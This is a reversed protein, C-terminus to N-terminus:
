QLVSMLSYASKLPNIGLALQHGREGMEYLQEDTMEVIQQLRHKLDAENGTEFRFGNYGNILFADNAGVGSSTIIPLGAATFEHVVVGWPDISSPLCFVGWEKTREAVQENALFDIIEIDPTATFKVPGNGVLVLKWDNPHTKKLSTFASVLLDIRKSEAMRGAFVFTHPYKQKKTIRSEDFAKRFTKMDASLLGPIIRSNDYGMRRAYEYQRNGPVFFYDFYKKYLPNAFWSKVQQKKSGTWQEDCGTVVVVGKARADKAAALYAADMRGSVYIIGPMRETIFKTISASDFTSRKHFTIGTENEPFFPTRKREDWYICDVEAGFESVLERMIAIAYPMVESYLYVIKKPDTM